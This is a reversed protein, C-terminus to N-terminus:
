RSRRRTSVLRTTAALAVISLVGFVVLLVMIPGRPADEGSSPGLVIPTITSGDATRMPPALVEQDLTIAFLDGRHTAPIDWMAVEGTSEDVRLLYSPVDDRTVEFTVEIPETEPTIWLVAWTGDEMALPLVGIPASGWMEVEDLATGQEFALVHEGVEWWMSLPSSTFSMFRGTTLAELERERQTTPSEDRLRDWLAAGIAYGWVNFCFKEPDPVQGQGQRVFQELVNTVPARSVVAHGTAAVGALAAAAGLWGIPTTFIALSPFGYVALYGTAAALTIWEGKDGADVLSFYATGFLHYWPGIDEGDRLPALNQAFIQREANLGVTAADLGRGIARLTNHALLMAQTVNGNTLRLSLEFVDGPQLLHDAGMGRREESTAVILNRLTTENGDVYGRSTVKGNFDSLWQLAGVTGLYPIESTLFAPDGPHEAEYRAIASRFQHLLIDGDVILGTLGSDHGARELADASFPLRGGQLWESAEPCLPYRIPDNATVFQYVYYTACAEGCGGARMGLRWRDGPQGSPVAIRFTDAAHAREICEFDPGMAEHKCSVGVQISQHDPDGGPLPHVSFYRFLQADQTLLEASVEAEIEFVEGPELTVPPVEYRVEARARPPRSDHITMSGRSVSVFLYDREPSAGDPNTEAWAFKWHGGDPPDDDAAVPEATAAALSAILAMSVVLTSWRVSRRHRGHRQHRM